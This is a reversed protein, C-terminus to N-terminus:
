PIARVVRFTFSYPTSPARHRCSAIARAASCPSPSLSRLRRRREGARVGPRESVSTATTRRDAGSPSVACCLVEGRAMRHRLDGALEMLAGADRLELTRGAGVEIVAGDDREAANIVLV